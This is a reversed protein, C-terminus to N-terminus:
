TINYLLNYLKYKFYNFDKKIKEDNGKIDEECEEDEQTLDVFGHKLDEIAEEIVVEVQDKILNANIFSEETDYHNLMKSILPNRVIDEKGFVFFGLEDIGMLRNFVDYLGTQTLKKFRDSQDLDGSIIYKSDVGIRTLLTKMQHPSINQAEEVILITNDMTKGRILGLPEISVIGAEEMKERAFRGLIKDLIDMSSALHPALKEKLDGPLFGLNEEAEVAPKVIKLYEYKNSKNQILELAKGISLYSKGTGAPGAAVIIEKEVILDTFAKQNKNKHKIKVRKGLIGQITNSVESTPRDEVHIEKGKKRKTM